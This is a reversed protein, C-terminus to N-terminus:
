VTLTSLTAPRLTRGTGKLHLVLKPCAIVWSDTELCSTNQLRTFSICQCNKGRCKSYAIGVLHKEHVVNNSPKATFNTQDTNLFDYRSFDVADM